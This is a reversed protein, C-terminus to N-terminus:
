IRHSSEQTYTPGKEKGEPSRAEGMLCRRCSAMSIRRGLHCNGECRTAMRRDASVAFAQVCATREAASLPNEMEGPYHQPACQSARLSLVHLM